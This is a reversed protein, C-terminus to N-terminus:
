RRGRGSTGARQGPCSKNQGGTRQNTSSFSFLYFSFCSMKVQKLYLCSCLSNGQSAEMYTHIIVVIPKDGRIKKM